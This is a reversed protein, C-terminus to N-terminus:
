FRMTKPCAMERRRGEGEKGREKEWDELGCALSEVRSIFSICRFIIISVKCSYGNYYSYIIIIINVMDVNILVINQTM